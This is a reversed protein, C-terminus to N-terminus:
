ACYRTSYEGMQELIPRLNKAKEMLEYEVRLPMEAYVHRKILGDREMERIRLSLTKSNIGEVSDLLENFRTKNYLMMDRLILITFKKGILDFTNHIPCNKLNSPNM